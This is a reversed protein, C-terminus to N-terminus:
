FDMRSHVDFTLDDAGQSKYKYYAAVGIMAANDTCLNIAPLYLKIKEEKCRQTILQRLRSNAAVGGALVLKDLGSVKVARVSKEVLVEVVSEQFSASVDATNIENGKQKQRHVYNIVGTKVGSFSFDFGDKDLYVRKFEIASKDGKLALKDIKPGGPYGLGIVRAVKDYAEGVADDRTAGLVKFDTYGNVEIINTHGGSVVLSIFPPELEPYTIFNSSIHGHMHNVAVIPKDLSLSLAKATAVGIVLSGVLGPGNTVGILDIDRWEIGAESIAEDIVRNIDVLHHRSAVEPVVGGFKEHIDIQSSIINSMVFRGDSLVAAASEDCSSEIALTIFQGDKM